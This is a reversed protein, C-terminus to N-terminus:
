YYAAIIKLFSFINFMHRKKINVILLFYKPLNTYYVNKQKKINYFQLYEIITM